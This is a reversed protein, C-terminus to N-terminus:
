APLGLWGALVEHDLHALDRVAFTACRSVQELPLSTAVGLARLGAARGAACGGASDEIVLSYAKDLEADYELNLLDFARQYGEPDPKGMRVDEITVLVDFHHRLKFADLLM